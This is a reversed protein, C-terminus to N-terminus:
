QILGLYEAMALGKASIYGRETPHKGKLFATHKAKNYDVLFNFQKATFDIIDNQKLFWHTTDGLNICYSQLDTEDLFHFLAESLLYCYGYTPNILSWQSKYRPHLLTNGLLSLKMDVHDQTIDELKM